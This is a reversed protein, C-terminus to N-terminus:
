LFHLNHLGYLSCPMFKNNTIILGIYHNLIVKAELLVLLKGIFTGRNDITHLGIKDLENLFHENMLKTKLKFRRTEIEQVLDKIEIGIMEIKKVM